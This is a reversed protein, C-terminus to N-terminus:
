STASTGVSSIDTCDGRFFHPNEEGRRGEGHHRRPERPSCSPSPRTFQGGLACTCPARMPRSLQHPPCPRERPPAILGSRTGSPGRSDRPPLAGQSGVRGDSFSPSLPTLDEGLHEPSPFYGPKLLPLRLGTGSSSGRGRGVPAERTAEQPGEVGPQGPAGWGRELRTSEKVDSFM